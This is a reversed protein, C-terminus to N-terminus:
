FNFSLSSIAEEIMKSKRELEIKEGNVPDTFNLKYSYLMQHIFGQKFDMKKINTTTYIQEGVLPNKISFMHLRIQHTRGTELKCEILSYKGKNITQLVKYNTIAIKAKTEDSNCITMRQICKKDRCIYNEIRGIPPIPVNHCLALYRRDIEHSKMLENLLRHEKNNKAIIMLGSTDKDLRHVIGIRDDGRENSFTIKRQNQLYLLGNVITNSNNGAGPHVTIGVPKDIIILNDNEFVINIKINNPKLHPEKPKSVLNVEIKDNKKVDFSCKKIVNNNIKVDGTKIFNQIENRSYEKNFQKTLFVDLRIDENAIFIKM